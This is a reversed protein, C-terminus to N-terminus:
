RGPSGSPRRLALMKRDVESIVHPVGIPDLRRREASILGLEVGQRKEDHTPMFRDLWSRGGCDDVLSDITTSAVYQTAVLDFLDLLTREEAGGVVVPHAGPKDIYDAGLYFGTLPVLYVSDGRALTAAILSDPFPRYGAPLAGQLQRGLGDTITFGLTGGDLYRGTRVHFPPTLRFGAAVRRRAEVEVARPGYPPM